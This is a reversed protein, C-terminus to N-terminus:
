DPVRNSSIEMTLSNGFTKGSSIEPKGESLAISNTISCTGLVSCIDMGVYLIADASIFSNFACKSSNTLLPKMRGLVAGYPVGSRKTFFFSPLNRNQISYM